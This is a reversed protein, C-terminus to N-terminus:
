NIDEEDYEDDFDEEFNLDQKKDYSDEESSM